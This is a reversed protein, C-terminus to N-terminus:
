ETSLHRAAVLIGLSAGPLTLRGDYAAQVAEPLDWWEMSMGTESATLQQEGLILDRALFLHLRATNRTM